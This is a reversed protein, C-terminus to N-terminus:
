NPAEAAPIAPVEPAAAAVAVASEGGTRLSTYQELADGMASEINKGTILMEVRRNHAREEPTNNSDVPRHQGFGESVLRAPDM